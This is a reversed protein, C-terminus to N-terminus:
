IAELDFEGKFGGNLLMAGIRHRQIRMDNSVYAKDPDLGLAVCIGNTIVHVGCDFGNPQMPGLCRVSNWEDKVFNKGLIIEIWALAQATFKAKGNRNLSDIHAVTRRTPRIYILTWHSAECVPILMTDIDLFNDKTIGMRTLQSRTQAPTKQMREQFFSNFVAIKRTQTKVNTINAKRHIYDELQALSSNIIEDNLWETSGLLTHFDKAKLKLRGPATALVETDSPPRYLISKTKTLWDQNLPAVLQQRPGRLAGSAQLLAEEEALRALKLENKKAEQKRREEAAAEERKRKEEALKAERLRREEAAKEEARRRAEDRKRQIEAEKRAKAEAIRRVKQRADSQRALADDDILQLHLQFKASIAADRLANSHSPQGSGPRSQYM